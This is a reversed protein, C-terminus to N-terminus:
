GAVLLPQCSALQKELEKRLADAHDRDEKMMAVFLDNGAKERLYIANHMHFIEMKEEFEIATCLADLLKPPSTSYQRLLSGIEEKIRSINRWSDLNIGVIDQVMIRALKVQRAHNEEELATKRWLRGVGREHRFQDALLHYLDAARQEMEQCADLFRSMQIMGNDM